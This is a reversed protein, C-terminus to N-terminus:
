AAADSREDLIALEAQRQAEYLATFHAGSCRRSCFRRHGEPLKWGCRVCRTREYLVAFQTFEPQGQQWSPRRAGIRRLASRVVDRAAADADRWRWGGQLILGSRIGM